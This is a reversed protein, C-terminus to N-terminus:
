KKNNSIFCSTNGQASKLIDVWGGPVRRIYESHTICRYIEIGQFMDLSYFQEIIDKLDEM